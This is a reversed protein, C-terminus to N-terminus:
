VKLLRQSATGVSPRHLLHPDCCTALTRPGRGAQLMMEHFASEVVYVIAREETRNGEAHTRYFGQRADARYQVCGGGPTETVVCPRSTQKAATMSSHALLETSQTAYPYAIWRASSSSTEDWTMRAFQRVCRTRLAASVLVRCSVLLYAAM